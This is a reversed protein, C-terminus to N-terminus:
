TQDGKMLENFSKFWEAKVEDPWSPDFSPFKALLLEQWSVAPPPPPPPPIDDQGTEVRRKQATQRAKKPKGNSPSRKGPEKIYASLQIGADKAAPISFTVCKRVTEGSALPRFQEELQNMTASAFDIHKTKLFPYSNLMADRLVKQYEGGEARVLARLAEKPAGNAEILSLYKLAHLIQSQTGGALTPMVSKDIRGPVGQAMSRFFNKLTKYAVYPPTQGREKEPQEM